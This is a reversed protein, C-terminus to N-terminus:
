PYIDALETPYMKLYIRFIQSQDPPANDVAIEKDFSPLDCLRSCDKYVQTILGECARENM